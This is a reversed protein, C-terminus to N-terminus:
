SREARFIAARQLALRAARAHAAARVLVRRMSLFVM